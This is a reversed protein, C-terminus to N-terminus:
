EDKKTARRWLVKFVVEKAGDGSVLHCHAKVKNEFVGRRFAKSKTRKECSFDVSNLHFLSFPLHSPPPLSLFAMVRRHALFRVAKAVDNRGKNSGRRTTQQYHRPWKPLWQYIKLVINRLFGVIVSASKRSIM